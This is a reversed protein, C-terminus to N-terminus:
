RPMDMPSGHNEFCWMLGDYCRDAWTITGVAPAPEPAPVGLARLMARSMSTDYRLAIRALEQRSMPAGGDMRLAAGFSPGSQRASKRVM